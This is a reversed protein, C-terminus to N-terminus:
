EKIASYVLPKVTAGLDRMPLAQSLTIVVLEDRPSIWFETGAGGLWEYEGISSPESDIKEVRVAFGLGF